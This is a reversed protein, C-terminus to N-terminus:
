DISHTDRQINWPRLKLKIIDLAYFICDGRDNDDFGFQKGSKSFPQCPFGATLIDHEPVKNICESINGHM